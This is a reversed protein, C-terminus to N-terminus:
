KEHVHVAVVTKKDFVSLQLTVTAGATLDTVKGGDSKVSKALPFTKDEVAANEKVTVTITNNGADVGKLSGHVSPGHASIGVITKRDYGSFQVVVPTDESLDSLKGEKAGGKVLGDDLLIKAGKALELTKEVAGDKSKSVVTVTNKDADVAKVAGHLSGGHVEIRLVMKEDPSLQLAVPVGEALDALAGAKTEKVLGHLLLVKVDKALAFTKEVREKKGKEAQVQVTLTRKGADVSQVTAPITPGVQPKPKDAAKVALKNAAPKEAQVRHGLLGASLGTATLVVLVFPVIKLRALFMTQMAGQALAAVPAAITCAPGLATQVTSSILAAPLAATVIRPALAEAPLAVGRATLHRALMRRARALRSSLTGEPVRLRRAAERRSAGQLECLVLPVRYKEPLRQIADDLLAEPESQAEDPCSIPLLPEGM